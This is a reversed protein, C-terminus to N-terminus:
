AVHRPHVKVPNVDGGVKAKKRAPMKPTIGDPLSGDPPRNMHAPRKGGACASSHPAFAPTSSSGGSGTSAKSAGGGSSKLRKMVNKYVSAASNHEPDSSGSSIQDIFIILCVGQASLSFEPDIKKGEELEATLAMKVQTADDLVADAEVSADLSNALALAHIGVADVPVGIIAAYYALNDIMEIPITINIPDGASADTPRLQAPLRDGGFATLTALTLALTCLRVHRDLQAERALQAEWALQLERALQAEVEAAAAAEAAAAHALESPPPQQQSHDDDALQSPGRSREVPSPWGRQSRTQDEVADGGGGAEWVEYDGGGWV